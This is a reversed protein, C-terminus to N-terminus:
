SMGMLALPNLSAFELKKIISSWNITEPSGVCSSLLRAYICWDEKFNSIATPPYIFYFNIHNMEFRFSYAKFHYPLFNIPFDYCPAM